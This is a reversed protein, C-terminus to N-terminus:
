FCHQGKILLLNCLIRQMDGKKGITLIMGSIKVYQFELNREKLNMFLFKEHLNLTGFRMLYMTTQFRIKGQYCLFASSYLGTGVKENLEHVSGFLLGVEKTASAIEESVNQVAKRFEKKELLDQPPYGCLSLEPFIVIDANRECGEFYGDLIKQKNGQLDGIIPNIQCLFIKM